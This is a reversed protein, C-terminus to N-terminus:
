MIEHKTQTVKAGLPSAAGAAAMILFTNIPLHHKKFVFSRM